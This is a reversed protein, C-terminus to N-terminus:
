SKVNAIQTIFNTLQLNVNGNAKLGSLTKGAAEINKGIVSYKVKGLHLQSHLFNVTNEALEIAKNRDKIKDIFNLKEGTKMEIFNVADDNSIASQQNNISKIIECRSVITPLVKRISPATLAFYVNEQPEELSKLFANLAEEGAEHINECVILTPEQFSLRILNNLNRTDEIKVIPFDMIKAHLKEALNSIASQQNIAQGIFLFAHM